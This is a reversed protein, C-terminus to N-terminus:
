LYLFMNKTNKYDKPNNNTISPVMNINKLSKANLMHLLIESM